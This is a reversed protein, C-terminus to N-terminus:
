LCEAPLWADERSSGGGGLVKAQRNKKSAPQDLTDGQEAPLNSDAPLMGGEGRKEESQMMRQILCSSKKGWPVM